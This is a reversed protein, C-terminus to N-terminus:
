IGTFILSPEHGPIVFGPEYRSAIAKVKNIGAYFSFLDYIVLHPVAPGITKPAPPIPHSKGKMDVLETTGPFAMFNTLAIDGLLAVTGKKTNVAIVQNGLSHGGPVKYATIGDELQFDGDLMIKNVDPKKFFDIMSLDYDGRALQQPIPHLMNWWEDKQFIFRADPFLHCNGAHDNHLHTLIVTDIDKPTLNEKELGKQVLVAGGEAPLAGWAKGDVIFGDNIGTDVLINRGGSQLLFGLYPGELDIDMDGLPPMGAPWMMSLRAKISGFYLVKITWTKM